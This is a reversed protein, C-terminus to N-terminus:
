TQHHDHRTIDRVAAHEDGLDTEVTVVAPDLDDGADQPVGAELDDVGTQELRGVGHRGRRDVLVDVDDPQRHERAGVHGEGREDDLLNALAPASMGTTTPPMTGSASMAFNFSAPTAPTSVGPADLSWTTATIRSTMADRDYSARAAISRTSRSVFRNASRSSVGVASESTSIVPSM